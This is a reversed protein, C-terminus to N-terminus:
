AGAGPEGAANVFVLTLDVRTAPLGAWSHVELRYRGSQPRELVLLEDTLRGSTAAQEVGVAGGDAARGESKGLLTGPAFVGMKWSKAKM